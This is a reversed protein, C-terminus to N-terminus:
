TAQYEGRTYGTGQQGYPNRSMPPYAKERKSPLRAAAACTATLLFFYLTEITYLSPSPDTAGNLVFYVLTCLLAKAPVSGHNTIMEQLRRATLYLLVVFVLLGVYGIDLVTQLMFNHASYSGPDPTGYFLYDYGLNAGSSIQGNAGYGYLQTLSPHSLFHLIAHWIFTRNTATVLDDGQRSFTGVLSTQAVVGLVFSVIATTAPVLFALCALVRHRGIILALITAAIACLLAGRADTALLAYASAMLLLIAILRQRGAVRIALIASAALAVGVTDGFNVVGDALPFLVRSTHIGVLGLLQAPTGAAAVSSPSHFGVIRMAVNTAVYVGPICCLIFMRRDRERGSLATAFYLYGFVLLLCIAAAEYYARLVTSGYVGASEGRFLEIIILLTFLGVLAGQFSVFRDPRRLPLLVAIGVMLPVLALVRVNTPPTSGFVVPLKLWVIALLM